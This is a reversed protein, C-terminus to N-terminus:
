GEPLGTACLLVDQCGFADMLRVTALQEPALEVPRQRTLAYCRYGDATCLEALLARLQATGPLVEVFLTPRQERLHERAARLLLHEQGEVDLKVLDVGDLLARVDVTPVDVVRVVDKAMDDPLESGPGLYAVTPTAGQGAPVLLPMSSDGPGAVAAAEVVEVSTM